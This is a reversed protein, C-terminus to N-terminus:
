AVRAKKRSECKIDMAIIRRRWEEQEHMFPKPRCYGFWRAVRVYWPPAFRSNYDAALGEAITRDSTRLILAARRDAQTDVVRYRRPEFIGTDIVVYHPM